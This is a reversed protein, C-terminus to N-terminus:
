CILFAWKNWSSMRWKTHLLCRLRSSNQPPLASCNMCVSHLFPLRVNFAAFLAFTKGGDPQKSFKIDNLTFKVAIKENKHLIPYLPPTCLRVQTIMNVGNSVVQETHTYTHIHTQYICWIYAYICIKCNVWGRVLGHEVVPARARALTM